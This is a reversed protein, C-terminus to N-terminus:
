HQHRSESLGGTPLCFRLREMDQRLAIPGKFGRHIGVINREKREKKKEKREKEREKKREKEKDKYLQVQPM